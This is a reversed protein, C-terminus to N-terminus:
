QHRARCGLCARWDRGPARMFWATKFNRSRGCPACLQFREFWIEDDDYIGLSHIEVPIRQGDKAKLIREVRFDGRQKLSKFGEQVTDMIEHPYIEQIIM